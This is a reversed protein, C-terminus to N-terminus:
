DVLHATRPTGRSIDIKATRGLVNDLEKVPLGYGPRISRVITRTFQERKKMDEMIFLPRRFARSAVEKESMKCSVKGLSKEAIRVREVMTPFEDLTSSFARLSFQTM